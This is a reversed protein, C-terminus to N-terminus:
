DDLLDSVVETLKVALGFEGNKLQDKLAFTAQLLALEIDKEFTVKCVCLKDVKPYQLVVTVTPADVRPFEM